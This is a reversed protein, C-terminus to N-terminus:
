SGRGSRRDRRCNSSKNKRKRWAVFGLAVGGMILAVTAPEPINPTSSPDIASLGAADFQQKTELVVAGSVPTVLQFTSALTVAEVPNPSMKELLRRVEKAAWLRALHAGKEQRTPDTSVREQVEITRVLVPGGGNLSRSMEARLDESLGRVRPAASVWPIKDLKELLVHAGQVVAFARIRVLGPQRAEKQLLGECSQWGCPQAGHIWFIEGRDAAAIDWAASLAEASDQGGDFSQARLWRAVDSPTRSPCSMVTDSALILTIEVDAKQAAIANAIDPVASALGSSGDVVIVLERREIREAERLAQMFVKGPMQPHIAWAEGADAGGSTTVLPFAEGAKRKLGGHLAWLGSQTKEVRLDGGSAELPEAAELWLNHVLDPPASFNQEIIEPLKLQWRGSSPELPLSPATIGMRVKMEGGEPVPFCQMLIRDPGQTTVLVPDRRQRVAVQQYAERVQARGAFAAEREEGNVWLTLRSVVGGPPLVIQARAEQAMPAANKFVLTWELYNVLAKGNLTGDLRSEALSLGKL